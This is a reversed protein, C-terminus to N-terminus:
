TEISILLEFLYTINGVKYTFIILKYTSTYTSVSSNNKKNFSSSDQVNLTKLKDVIIHILQNM